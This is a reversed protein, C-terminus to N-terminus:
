EAAPQSKRWELFEEFLADRSSKSLPAAARVPKDITRSAAQRTPFAQPTNPPFASRTPLGAERLRWCKRNNAHDLRYYWHLGEPAVGNPAALCDAAQAPGAAWGTLAAALAWGTAVCGAKNSM